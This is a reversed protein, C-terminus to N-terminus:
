RADLDLGMQEAIVKVHCGAAIMLSAGTHRLDHFTLEPIGAAKAAPKFVRHIFNDADFPTGVRTPFLPGDANPERALQQERILRVVRPASTLRDGGPARRPRSASATRASRSSPSRAPRSTSTRTACGLVEGRRLMTLVAIPVIRAVYEPVWSRLEDVEAWALVRPRREEAKAIRIRHVAPDIV